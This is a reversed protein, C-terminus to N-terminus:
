PATPVAGAGRAVELLRGPYNSVIGDVGRGILTAMREPADVTYACARMGRGHIAGILVPTAKRYPLCLGDFGARKAASALGRGFPGGRLRVGGLWSSGRHITRPSALAVLRIRHDLRGIARLVGWDFSQATARRRMRQRRLVHVVARAFAQRSVSERPHTPDHKVDVFTRGATPRVVRLLQGLTPIHAGPVPRQTSLITRSGCDLDRLQGLTLNKVFHGVEPGSCHLGSIRTEHSVVVRRDRTVGVDAEVATAGVQLGYQFAPITNEPRLGGAGRHGIVEFASAPVATAALAVAM